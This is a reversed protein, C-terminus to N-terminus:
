VVDKCTVELMPEKDWTERECLVESDTRDTVPGTPGTYEMDQNLKHTEVEHM